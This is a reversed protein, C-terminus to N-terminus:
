RVISYKNMLYGIFMCAKSIIGIKLLPYPIKQQLKVMNQVAKTIAMEPAYQQITIVQRIQLNRWVRWFYDYVIINHLSQNGLQQLLYLNEPIEIEPKRFVQKTVQSDSMGITVLPQQICYYRHQQLTRIYFEIDVVWKVKEDYWKTIVSKNILTTSPHGVFNQKLLHLPSSQLLQQHYKSLLYTSTIAQTNANALHYGSFIFDAKTIAQVMQQLSQDSTFWDDDHMLKIWSGNALAIAANWNAPTGLAQQNKQYIITFQHQYDQVLKEVSNDSGSDDTIIVEFPQYSQIAISELLHKLYQVRKYAPICISILPNM